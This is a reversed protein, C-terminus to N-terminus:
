AIVALVILILNLRLALLCKTRYEQTSARIAFVLTLLSGIALYIVLAAKVWVFYDSM